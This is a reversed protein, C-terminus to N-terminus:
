DGAARTEALRKSEAMQRKYTVTEEYVPFYRAVLSYVLVLGSAVGALIAVEMWSPTYTQGLVPKIAFWTVDFRNLVIGGMVLFAGFMSVVRSYRVREFAFLIIPIVAGVIIETWFLFSYIGSTLLLDLEGAILLEGFKLVLYFGLIWPLFWGLKAITREKLSRGLLWYSVTAGGIVLSIGAALSSVLFFIPLLMSHWLPHVRPSM